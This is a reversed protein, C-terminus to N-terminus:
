RQINNFSAYTTTVPPTNLEGLEALVDTLVALKEEQSLTSSWEFAKGNITGGTLGGVRKGGNLVNSVLADREAKLQTVRTARISTDADDAWAVLAAVLGTRIM